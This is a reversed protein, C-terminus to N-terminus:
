CVYVAEVADLKLTVASGPARMCGKPGIPFVSKLAEGCMATGPILWLMPEM